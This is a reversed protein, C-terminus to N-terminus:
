AVLEAYEELGSVVDGRGAPVHRTRPQHRSLIGDVVPWHHKGDRADISGTVGGPDKVSWHLRSTKAPFDPSREYAADYVTIVYDWSSGVEALSKARHGSLSLGTETMVEMALHHIHTPATGASSVLFQGARYQPAAAEAIQSRASNHTCVFLVREQSHSSVPQWARVSERSAWPFGLTDRWLFWVFILYAALLGLPLFLDWLTM